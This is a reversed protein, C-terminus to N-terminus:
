RPWTFEPERRRAPVEIAELVVGLERDTDFYAYGGDGDLGYGAGSQVVEYGAAAMEAIAGALSEVWFGLHHLGEGHRTSWEEYISPGIRPEVLELQPSGATLAIRAEHRAPESRYTLRPVLKPGYTYVRWRGGGWIRDYRELAEELDRVLIGIQDPARGELFPVHGSSV